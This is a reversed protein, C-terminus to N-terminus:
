KVKIGYVGERTGLVIMNNFIVPSAEVTENLKIYHLEEGTKGDFLRCVGSANALFVYATGDNTYVPIPSSWTYNGSPTQWVVEGTEKDLALLQSEWAGPCRGVSYIILGEISTGEKGLLPSSQVGGSCGDYTVCNMVHTWMVEGTQADLKYIPIEGHHDDQTWHLSPATYIYGNGDEGWDFLPSSNSDDKTDQAWMLEMTNLDICHMLGGNESAYLYHDIVCASSEYGLYRKEKESYSSTYRSKVPTEPAVTFTGAQPDYQSNLKITYMIGNEGPWILTDTETDVLPSSDFANWKRQAFPDNSGYHYLVSGDILSVIYMEPHKNYVELGGGVYLVPYGRPDLAGSGKFVMGMYIPDRTASGDDLDYFHIYGDMKAYIVEVLDAKSKKSGYLNMNQKTQDDWQVILPQGTWGCGIWEPSELYSVSNRWVQNLTKDTVQATGYCPANRYNNGRFTAIGPLCFYEAPDGLSIPHAREYTEVNQGDVNLSWTMEWNAPDSSEQFGPQFVPETVPPDSPLPIAEGPAPDDPVTSPAPPPPTPNSPTTPNNHSVSSQVIPTYTPYGGEPVQSYTALSLVCFIIQLGTAIYIFTAIRPSFAGRNRSFPRSLAVFICLGIMVLAVLLLIPIGRSINDPDVSPAAACVPIILCGLSLVATLLKLFSKM